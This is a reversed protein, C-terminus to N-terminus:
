KRSENTPLRGHPNEQWYRTHHPLSRGVRQFYLPAREGVVARVAQIYEPKIQGAIRVTIRQCRWSSSTGAVPVEIIGPPLDWPRSFTEWIKNQWGRIEERTFEAQFFEFKIGEVGEVIARMAEKYEDKLERLGVTIVMVQPPGLLEPGRFGQLYDVLPVGQAMLHPLADVLEEYAENQAIVQPFGDVIQNWSFRVSPFGPGPRLATSFIVPVEEIGFLSEAKKAIWGYIQEARPFRDSRVAINIAGRSVSLSVVLPSRGHRIQRLLPALEYLVKELKQNFEELEEETSLAPVRGFVAIIYRNRKLEEEFCLPSRPPQPLSNLFDSFEQVTMSWLDVGPFLEEFRVEHPPIGKAEALRERIAVLWGKPEAVIGWWYSDDMRRRDDAVDGALQAGYGYDREQQNGHFAALGGAGLMAVVVVVSIVLWWKKM